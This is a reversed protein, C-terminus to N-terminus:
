YLIDGILRVPIRDGSVGSALAVAGAWASGSTTTVGQGDSDSTLSDGNTVTGGLQLMINSGDPPPNGSMYITCNEGKIAHFGDQIAAYPFFRQSPGSVGLVKDTSAAAQLAYGGSTTTDRKVFRCPKINGNAQLAFSM